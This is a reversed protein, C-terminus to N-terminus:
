EKVRIGLAALFKDDALGQRTKQIATVLEEHGKGAAEYKDLLEIARNLTARNIVVEQGQGLRRLAPRVDDLFAASEKVLAPNGSQIKEVDEAVEGFLAVYRQGRANKLLVNDRVDRLITDTLKPKETAKVPQSGPWFGNGNKGGEPCAGISGPPGGPTTNDGVNDPQYDNACCCWYQTTGGVQELRTTCEGQQTHEPPCQGDCYHYHGTQCDGVAAYVTGPAACFLILLGSLAAGITAQRAM